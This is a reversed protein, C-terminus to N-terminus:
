RADVECLRIQRCVPESAFLASYFGISQRIDKVAVHVHLRKM